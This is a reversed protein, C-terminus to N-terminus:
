YVATKAMINMRESRQDAISLCLLRLREVWEDMRENRQDAISLCPLRLWAMQEDTQENRQDAITFCLLRLWSVWKSRRSWAVQVLQLGVGANCCRTWTHSVTHVMTLVQSWMLMGRTLAGLCQDDPQWYWCQCSDATEM